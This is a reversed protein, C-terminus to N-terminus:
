IKRTRSVSLLACFFCCPRSNYCLLMVKPGPRRNGAHAIRINEASRRRLSGARAYYDEHHGLFAAAEARESVSSLVPSEGGNYGGEGRGDAESLPSETVRPVPIEGPRMPRPLSLPSLDAGSCSSAARMVSSGNEIIVRRRLTDIKRENLVREESWELAKDLSSTM